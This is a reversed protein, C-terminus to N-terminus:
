KVFLYVMKVTINQENKEMIIEGDEFKPKRFKITKDSFGYGEKPIGAKSKDIIDNNNEDHFVAVSYTGYPIDKFYVNAKNKVITKIAKRYAKKHDIMFYQKNAENYIAVKANGSNNKFGEIDIKLNGKQAFSSLTIIFILSLFIVTKKM